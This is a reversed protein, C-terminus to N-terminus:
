LLFPIITPSRSRKSHRNRSIPADSRLSLITDFNLSRLTVAILRQVPVSVKAAFNIAGNRASFKIRRNKIPILPKSFNLLKQSKALSQEPFSIAITATVRVIVHTVLGFFLQITDCIGISFSVVKPLTTYTQFTSVVRIAMRRTVIDVVKTPSNVM